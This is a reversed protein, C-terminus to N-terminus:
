FITRASAVSSYFERRERGAAARRCFLADFNNRHQRM